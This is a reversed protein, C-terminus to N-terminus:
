GGLTWAALPSKAVLERAADGCQVELRVCQGEPGRLAAVGGGGGELVLDLSLAIADDFTNRFDSAMLGEGTEVFVVWQARKAM